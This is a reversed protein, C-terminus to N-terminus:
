RRETHLLQIFTVLCDKDDIGHIHRETAKHTQRDAENPNRSHRTPETIYVIDRVPEMPNMLTVVQIMPETFTGTEKM